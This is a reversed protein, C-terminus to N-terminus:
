HRFGDITFEHGCGECTIDLAIAAEDFYASVVEGEEDWDLIDITDLCNPCDAYCSYDFVASAKSLDKEGKTM